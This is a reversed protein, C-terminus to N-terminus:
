QPGKRNRRERWVAIGERLLALLATLLPIYDQFELM